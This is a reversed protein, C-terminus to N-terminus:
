ELDAVTNESEAEAACDIHLLPELTTSILVPHMIQRKSTKATQLKKTTLRSCAYGTRREERGLRWRRQEPSECDTGPTPSLISTMCCARTLCWWDEESTLCYSWKTRSWSGTTGKHATAYQLLCLSRQKLRLILFCEQYEKSVLNPLYKGGAESM